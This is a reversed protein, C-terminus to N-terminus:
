RRLSEALRDTDALVEDLPRDTRIVVDAVKEREADPLQARVRRRLEERSTEPARAAARELRVEEPASVTVIVDFRERGGSEILLTAEVVGV